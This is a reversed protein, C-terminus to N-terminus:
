GRRGRKKERGRLVHPMTAALEERVQSAKLAIKLEDVERRLRVVESDEQAADKRPRGVAKPELGGLAGKLARNRLRHFMAEKLGLEECAQVVSKEGSITELIVRLRNKSIRSGELTDV